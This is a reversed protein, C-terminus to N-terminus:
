NTISLLQEFLNQLTTMVRANAGYSNQLVTLFAVETDINVGVANRLDTYIEDRLTQRITSSNQLDASSEVAQTLFSNVFGIYSTNDIELGPSKLDRNDSDLAGVAATASSRKIHSTGDVLSNNVRITRRDITSPTAGSSSEFLFASLEGSGARSTNYTRAFKQPPQFDVAGAVLGFASIFPSNNIELQNGLYSEISLRGNSLSFSIGLNGFQSDNNLEDVLQQGTTISTNSSLNKNIITTNGNNDTVNISFNRDAAALSLDSFLNTFNSIIVGGTQTAKSPLDEQSGEFDLATAFNGAFSAIATSDNERELIIKDNEVRATLLAHNNLATVLTARDNFETNANTLPVGAGVYTFTTSNGDSFAIDITDNPAVTNPHSAALIGSFNADIANSTTHINSTELGLAVAGQGNLSMKGANTFIEIQGFGNLRAGVDPANANIKDILEQYTRFQNGTPTLSDTATFTVKSGDNVQIILEDDVDLNAINRTLFDGSFSESDLIRTGTQLITSDDALHFAMDNLQNRIKELTGFTFDPHNVLNRRKDIIDFLSRLEGGSFLEKVDRGDIDSRKLEQTGNDYSFSAVKTGTILTLGSTTSIGVQHGDIRYTQIGVYESMKQIRGDRENELAAYPRNANALQFIRTNLKQIERIHINLEDIKKAIDREISTQVENIAADIRRFESTVSQAARVIHRENAAIEPAAEFARWADILDNFENALPSTGTLVGLAREVQEISSARAKYYGLETNSKTLLRSLGINEARFINDSRVGGPLFDTVQVQRRNYQDNNANAINDSTTALQRQNAVLGTLANNLAVGLGM